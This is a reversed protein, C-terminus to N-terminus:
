RAPEKTSPTPEYGTGGCEPCAIRDYVAGSYDRSVTGTAFCRRCYRRAKAAAENVSATIFGATAADICEAIVAGASDIVECGKASYSAPESRRRQASLVRLFEIEIGASPRERETM